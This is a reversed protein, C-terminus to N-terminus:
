ALESGFEGGGFASTGAVWDQTILQQAATTLGRASGYLVVIEGQGVGFGTPDDIEKGPVGIALDAFGDGNFDSRPPEVPRAPSASPTARATPSWGAALVAVLLLVRGSMRLM